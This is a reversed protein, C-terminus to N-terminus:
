GRNVEQKKPKDTTSSPKITGDDEVVVYGDREIRRVVEATTSVIYIKAIKELLGPQGVHQELHDYIYRQSPEDVSNLPETLVLIQADQALARALALRQRQGGSLNAGESTIRAAYYDDPGLGGLRHAIERSDTIKLLFEDKARAAEATDPPVTGLRLHEQLTGAFIMPNSESLLVREETQTNHPTPTEVSNGTRLAATLAQAYDQATMNHARPNIYIIHQNAAQASVERVRVRTTSEHANAEAQLEEMEADTRPKKLVGKRVGAYGELRAIKALGIKAYRWETIFNQSIWIPGGMMSIISAVTVLSAAHVDPEWRGEEVHGTLAFGVGLLTVIGTLLVRVFFMWRRIREYAMLSDFVANAGARYRARMQQEAGLGTITRLGTAIDSARSSNEGDKTRYVGVRNELFKSYQILVGVVIFTGVFTIIATLPSILWLMVAGMAAVIIANAFLPVSFFLNTVRRIDKTMVTVMEGPDAKALSRGLLGNVYTRWDRDLESGFRLSAGWGFYENAAIVMISAVVVWFLPWAVATNGVIQQNIFVGVIVPILIAGVGATTEGVMPIVWRHWPYRYGPPTVRLSVRNKLEDAAPAKAPHQPTNEADTHTHVTKETTNREAPEATETMITNAIQRGRQICETFVSPLM